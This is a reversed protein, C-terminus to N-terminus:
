AKASAPASAGREEPSQYGGPIVLVPCSAVTAQVGSGALEDAEGRVNEAIVTEVAHTRAHATVIHARERRAYEAAVPVARDSRESGDLALVITRDMAVEM